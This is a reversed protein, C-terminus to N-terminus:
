GAGRNDEERRFHDWGMQSPDVVSGDLRLLNIGFPYDIIEGVITIQPQDAEDALVSAVHEIAKRDGTFLLEFDEGGNVYELPDRGLAKATENVGPDLPIADERLRAGVGSALCLRGLDIGLGDSIDMMAHIGENSALVQGAWVRAHPRLHSEIIKERVEKEVREGGRLLLDLGAGSGGLFGTVAIFDGLKAGSRRLLRGTTEGLLTLSVCVEKPSRALDGGIILADCEAMGDRLGTGFEEFWESSTGEPAALTCVGWRPIAGMAAVDSLNAMATRWGIDYASHHERTFHVGEVLMDATVVIKMEPDCGPEIAAADDGIGILLDSPWEQPAFLRQFVGVMEAESGPIHTKENM